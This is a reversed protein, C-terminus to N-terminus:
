KGLFYWLGLTPSAIAQDTLVKKVVTSMAKGVFVRDLWKYWVHM